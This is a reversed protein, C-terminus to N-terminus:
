KNNGCLRLSGKGQIDIAYGSIKSAVALHKDCLYQQLEQDIRPIVVTGFVPDVTATLYHSSIQDDSEDPNDSRSYIAEHSHKKVFFAAIMVSAGLILGSIHKGSLDIFEGHFANCLFTKDESCVYPKTM